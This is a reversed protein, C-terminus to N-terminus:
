YNINKKMQKEARFCMNIVDYIFGHTSNEFKANVVLTHTGKWRATATIENPLDFYTKIKSPTHAYIGFSANDFVKSVQAPVPSNKVDVTSVYLYGDMVGVHLTASLRADFVDTDRTYDYRYLNRNIEIDFKKDGIDTIRADGGCFSKILGLITEPDKVGVVLTWKGELLQEAHYFNSNLLNDFSALKAGFAVDGTTEILKAQQKFMRLDRESGFKGILDEILKLDNPVNLSMAAVLDADDPLLALANTNVTNFYNDLACLTGDADMLNAELQAEGDGLAEATCTFWKNKLIKHTAVLSIAKGSKLVNAPGKVDALSGREAKKVAATVVQPPNHIIKRKDTDYDYDVKNEINAHWGQTHSENVLMYNTAWEYKSMTYCELGSESSDKSYDMSKIQKEFEDFDTIPFTVYEGYDHPEDYRATEGNERSINVVFINSLDVCDKMKYLMELDEELGDNNLEDFEKPLAYSKGKERLEANDILQKLDLHVVVAADDPITELIDSTKSCSTALMVTLIIAAASLKRTIHTSFKM